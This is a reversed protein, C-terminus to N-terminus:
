LRVVNNNYGLWDHVDNQLDTFVNFRKIYEDTNYLQITKEKSINDDPFEEKMLKQYYKVAAASLDVNFMYIRCEDDENSSNIHEQIELDDVTVNGLGAEVIKVKEVDNDDNNIQTEYIIRKLVNLTGISDCRLIIARNLTNIKNIQQEIENLIEDSMFEDGLDKEDVSHFTNNLDYNIDTYNDIVDMNKIVDFQTEIFKNRELERFDSKNENISRELNDCMYRYELLQTANLKDMVFIIEGSKPLQITSDYKSIDSIRKIYCKVAMGPYAENINNDDTPDKICRITGAMYGGVIIMDTKLIGCHIILMLYSGYKDSSAELVIAQPHIDRPSMVDIANSLVDLSFLMQDININYKASIPVIDFALNHKDEATIVNDLQLNIDNIIDSLKSNTNETIIKGSIEDQNMIKDIKNLTLLLPISSQKAKKIVEITQKQIGEIIDIVLVVADAVIVSNSRMKFFVEHGPTDIFTIRNRTSLNYHYCSVYQTIAGSEHEAINTNRITDLLTTKGHDVHGMVSIVCQKKNINENYKHNLSYQDLDVAEPEIDFPIPKITIKFENRLRKAAFEFPFVIESKKHFEYQIKNHRYWYLKKDKKCLGQAIANLPLRTAQCLHKISVVPPLSLINAEQHFWSPGRNRSLHM